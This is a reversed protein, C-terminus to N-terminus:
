RPYRDALTLGELDIDPTRASILDAVIKGSGCAMAWGSSGHGLNLYLGRHPTAGLLPAGEPLMPRAGIWLQPCTYDPAPGFWDRAVRWLTRLAQPRVTLSRTSLEATGSVRMRMGLRTVAVKFHEDMLAGQPAREHLKIPLTISYGKIAFLPLRIGLPALLAASEVGACVVVADGDIPPADALHVRPTGTFDLGTVTTNMRLEAGAGALQAKLRRAFLACNGSEDEALWVGAALPTDRALGPEIAYCREADVVEHKVGAQELLDLAPRALALDRPTRLLQLYGQHQEYDLGLRERLDHLQERSYFAIRQMRLRNARYRELACERLWARAWRWLAADFSPRFIVPSTSQMLGRFVKGPMGPSAWPTVYGPAIVGANAFSTEQASNERRDILTVRHGAGHLYHATTVGIIGAGIVVVHM